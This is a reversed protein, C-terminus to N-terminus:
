VKFLMSTYLYRGGLVDFDKLKEFGATEYLRMGAPSSVLYVDQHRERALTTIADVISRAIGKKQFEPHVALTAM